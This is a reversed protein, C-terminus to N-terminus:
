VISQYAAAEPPVARREPFVLKVVGEIEAVV